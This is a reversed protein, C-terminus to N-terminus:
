KTRPSADAPTTSGFQSQGGVPNAPARRSTLKGEARAKRANHALQWRKWVDQEALKPQAGVAQSHTAKTPANPADTAKAGPALALCFLVALRPTLNRIRTSM